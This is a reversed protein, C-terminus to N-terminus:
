HTARPARNPSLFLLFLSARDERLAEGLRYSGEALRFDIAALAGEDRVEVAALSSAIGAFSAVLARWRQRSGLIHDFVRHDREWDRALPRLLVAEHIEIFGRLQMEFSAFQELATAIARGGFEVRIAELERQLAAHRQSLADLADPDYRHASARPSRRATSRSPSAPM